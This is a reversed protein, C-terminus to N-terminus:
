DLLLGLKKKSMIQKILRNVFYESNTLPENWKIDRITNKREQELWPRYHLINKVVDDYVKEVLKYQKRM